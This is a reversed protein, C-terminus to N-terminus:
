EEEELLKRDGNDASLRGAVTDAQLACLVVHDSDMVIVSRTRRGHTADVLKGQERADQIMRKIPMSDPSTIAVIRSALVHTGHGLNLLKLEIKLM